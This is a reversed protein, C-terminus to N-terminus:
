TKRGHLVLVLITISQGSFMKEDTIKSFFFQDSPSRNLIRYIIYLLTKQWQKWHCFFSFVNDIKSFVYKVFLVMNLNPLLIFVTYIQEFNVLFVLFSHWHRWELLNTWGASIRIRTQYVFGLSVKWAKRKKLNKDFSVQFCLIRLLYQFDYFLFKSIIEFINLCVINYLDKLNRPFKM